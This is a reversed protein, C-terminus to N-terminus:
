RDPALVNRSGPRRVFKDSPGPVDGASEESKCVFIEGFVTGPPYYSRGVHDPTGDFLFGYRRLTALGKVVV